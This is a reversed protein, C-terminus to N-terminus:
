SSCNKPHLLQELPSALFTAVMNFLLGELEDPDLDRHARVKQSM